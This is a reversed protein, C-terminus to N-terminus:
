GGLNQRRGVVVGLSSSGSLFAGQGAPSVPLPSPACMDLHGTVMGSEIPLISMLTSHLTVKSGGSAVRSARDGRREPPGRPKGSDRGAFQRKTMEMPEPGSASNRTAWWGDRTPKAVSASTATKM